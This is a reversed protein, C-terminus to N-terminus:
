QSKKKLKEILISVRKMADETEHLDKVINIDLIDGERAGEPLLVLPLNFRVDEDDRLLMVAYDSEIRDLTAKM